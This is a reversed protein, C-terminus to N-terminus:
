KFWQQREPPLVSIFEQWDRGIKEVYAKFNWGMEGSQKYEVREYTLHALL